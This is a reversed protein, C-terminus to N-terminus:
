LTKEFVSGPPGSASLLAVKVKPVPANVPSSVPEPPVQCVVGGAASGLSVLGFYQNDLKVATSFEAPAPTDLPLLKVNVLGEIKILKVFVTTKVSKDVDPEVVIFPSLIVVPVIFAIFKSDVFKSSLPALVTPVCILKALPLISDFCNLISVDPLALKAPFTLALATIAAFILALLILAPVKATFLIPAFLKFIAPFAILALIPCKFKAVPTVDPVNLEVVDLVVM